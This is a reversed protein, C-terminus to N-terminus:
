CCWYASVPFISLQKFRYVLSKGVLGKGYKCTSEASSTRIGNGDTKLLIRSSKSFTRRKDDTGLFLFTLSKASIKLLETM